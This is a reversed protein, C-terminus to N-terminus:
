VTHPLELTTLYAYFFAFPFEPPIQSFRAILYHLVIPKFSEDDEHNQEATPSQHTIQRKM